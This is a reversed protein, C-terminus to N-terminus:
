PKAAPRLEVGTATLRVERATGDAGKVFRGGESEMHAIEEATVVRVKVSGKVRARKGKADLPVFFAYDKFFVRVSPAADDREPALEMWCGKRTCSARVKGDVVISKDAFKEPTALVVSLPIASQPTIPAGRRVVVDEAAATSASLTVVFLALTSALTLKV